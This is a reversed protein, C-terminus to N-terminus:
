IKLRTDKTLWEFWISINLFIITVMERLNSAL